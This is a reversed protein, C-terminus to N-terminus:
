TARVENQDAPVFDHEQLRVVLVPCPAYRVVQEAISGMLVHKLGTYGHTSIILLDVRLERATEAIVRAPSGERVLSEAKLGTGAQRQILAALEKQAGDRMERELRTFDLAGFEGYAYNVQVVHLFVLSANFQRAFAEAYSVSKRSNESFDVPVMIKQIRCVETAHQAKALVPDDGRQLEVVVAGGKAPKVKM